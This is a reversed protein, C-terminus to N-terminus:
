NPCELKGLHTMNHSGQLSKTFKRQVNEIKDMNCLLHPSWIVGNYIYICFCLFFYFRSKKFSFSWQFQRRRCHANRSIIFCFKFFSLYKSIHDGLDKCSSKSTIIFGYLTYSFNANVSTLKWKGFMLGNNLISSIM